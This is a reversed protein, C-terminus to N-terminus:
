LYLQAPMSASESEVLKAGFDVQASASSRLVRPVIERLDEQTQHALMEAPLAHSGADIERSFALM